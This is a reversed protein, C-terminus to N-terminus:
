PSANLYANGIDTALIDVDNLAALLFAIRVSDRSVVSSYTITSPPDTMHGGAVFRAKRTFDMKVDFIMHCRIWKYGIPIREGDEPFKFAIRNNRMEKQIADHWFTTNTAKDIALAEEVTSPVRIGFKHTRKAYRTKIANIM